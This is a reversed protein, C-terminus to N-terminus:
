LMCACVELVLINIQLRKRSPLCLTPPNSSYIYLMTDFKGGERGARQWCLQVDKRRCVFLDVCLCGFSVMLYLPSYTQIRACM